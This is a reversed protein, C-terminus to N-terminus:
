DNDTIPRVTTAEEKMKGKFLARFSARKEELNPTPEIGAVSIDDTPEFVPPLMNTFDQEDDNKDARTYKGIKDLAAAAGKADLNNIALAYAAKAGEIIMYRYWAKSALQINGTIKQIGAIDRYAQSQSVPTTAGECGNQLFIVLDSDSLLPDSILKSVCLLYRQRRQIDKQNTLQKEAEKEDLFLTKTMKEIAEKKSM